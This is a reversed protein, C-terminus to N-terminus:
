PLCRVCITSSFKSTYLKKVVTFCKLIPPLLSCHRVPLGFPMPSASIRVGTSIMITGGKELLCHRAWVNLIAPRTNPHEAGSTSSTEFVLLFRLLGELNATEAARCLWDKKLYIRLPIEQSLDTSSGKGREEALMVLCLKHCSRM